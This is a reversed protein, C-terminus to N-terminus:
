KGFFLIIDFYLKDIGYDNEKVHIVDYLKQDKNAIMQNTSELGIANIVSYEDTIKTVIIATEHSKGDGSSMVATLLNEYKFFWLRSSDAIGLKDYAVGTMFIQDINFPFEKLITLTYNLVKRFDSSQGKENLYMNLERVSEHRAGPRYDPQFAQGYYILIYEDPTLTTDNQIYRDYLKKYDDGKTKEMVDKLDVGKIQSYSVFVNMFVAILVFIRIM